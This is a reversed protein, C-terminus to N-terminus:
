STDGGTGGVTFKGDGKGLLVGGHDTVLDLHGDGNVDAAVLASSALSYEIPQKFTGDGRNIAVSAVSGGAFAIDLYGDENFDGVVPSGCSCRDGTARFTGDGNGLFIHLGHGDLYTVDLNGDDDLDAVGLASAQTGGVGGPQLRLKGTGDGLLIAVDEFVRSARYVVAL